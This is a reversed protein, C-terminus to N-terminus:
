VYKMKEYGKEFVDWVHSVFATETGVDNVKNTAASKQM